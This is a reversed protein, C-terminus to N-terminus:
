YEQKSKSSGPKSGRSPSGNDRNANRTNEKIGGGGTLHELYQQLILREKKEGCAKWSILRDIARCGKPGEGNKLGICLLCSKKPSLDARRL